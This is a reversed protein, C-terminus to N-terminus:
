NNKGLSADHKKNLICEKMRSIDKESKQEGPKLNINAVIKDWPNKYQQQKRCEIQVEEEQLNVEM